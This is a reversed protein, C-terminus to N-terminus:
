RLFQCFLDPQGFRVRSRFNRAIPRRLLRRGPERGTLASGGQCPVFEAQLPRQLSEIAADPSSNIQVLNVSRGRQSDQSLLKPFDLKQVFLKNNQVFLVNRTAAVFEFHAIDDHRNRLPEGDVALSLSSSTFNPEGKSDFDPRSLQITELRELGMFVSLTFDLSSFFPLVRHNDKSIPLSHILMDKEVFSSAM